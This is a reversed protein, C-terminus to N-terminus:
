IASKAILQLKQDIKSKNEDENIPAFYKKGKRYFYAGLVSVTIASSLAGIVYAITPVGIALFVIIEFTSFLTALGYSFNEKINIDNKYKVKEIIKKAMMMNKPDSLDALIKDANNQILSIEDIDVRREFRKEKTLLKKAIAREALKKIKYDSLTPYQLRMKKVFKLSEEQSISVKTKLYKLASKIREQESLNGNELYANLKRKFKLAAFYLYLYKFELYISVLVFLIDGCLNMLFKSSSNKISKIAGALFKLFSGIITIVNRAIKNVGDRMGEKDDIENSNKIIQQGDYIGYGGFAYGCADTVSAPVLERIVGVSRSAKDVFTNVELAFIAYLSYETDGTKIKELIQKKVKEVEAEKLIKEDAKTIVIKKNIVGINLFYKGIAKLIRQFLNQIKKDKVAKYETSGGL